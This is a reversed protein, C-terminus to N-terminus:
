SKLHHYCKEPWKGPNNLISSSTCQVVGTLLKKELVVQTFQYWFPLALRSKFSTLSSTLQVVRLCDAHQELCIVV